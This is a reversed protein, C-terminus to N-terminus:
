HLVEVPLLLGGFEGYILGFNFYKLDILAANLAPGAGFHQSRWWEDVAICVSNLCVSKYCLLSIKPPTRRGTAIYAELSV